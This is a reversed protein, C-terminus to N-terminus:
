LLVASFKFPSCLLNLAFVQRSFHVNSDGRQVVSLRQACVTGHEDRQWPQRGGTYSRESRCVQQYRPLDGLTRTSKCKNCRIQLSALGSGRGPFSEFRLRKPDHCQNPTEHHVWYLWDVDDLHGNECIQVFRMPVLQIGKRCDAGRCVPKDAGSEQGLQGEQRDDWRNMQRCSPCFMWRPFRVLGISSNPNRHDGTKPQLLRNVGMRGALRPLDCPVMNKYRWNDITMVVFSEDGLDVIAGPGATSVVQGKRIGRSM